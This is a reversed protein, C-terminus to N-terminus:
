ILTPICAAEPLNRWYKKPMQATMAAVKLRAPNFIAAFYTRWQDEISNDTPVEDKKAGPGFSLTRGQWVVRADPTLIAWNMGYFRRVFFPTALETIRHSPEFWAAFAERGDREGLKRFRVYAHMKHVDRRIANDRDRLWLVDDDTLHSLLSQDSQLRWLLRYLRAFREPDRHCAVRRGLDIFERPVSVSPLPGETEAHPFPTGFLSPLADACHWDVEEPALGRALAKRAPTRWAEFDNPSALEITIM